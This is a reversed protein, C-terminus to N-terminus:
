QVWVRLTKKGMKTFKQEFGAVRLLKGVRMENARTMQAASFGLAGAMVEATTFSTGRRPPMKGGLDDLQGGDLWRELLSDWSDSVRYQEHVSPALTEADRWAIGSARWVAAGEAWLQLRDARIGALDIDAVRVPLWRRNGTEDVLFERSNTTGIFVLRRPFKTNFERYKPTWEEHTATIFAKVAEIERTGLGRLESIEGVLRGRIKRSLAEDREALNITTFHEPDVVLERAATTKKAGQAGVLIPVSDAKCGPDLVRGALATWLYLSVARTYTTDEANCYDILFREVRQTGDWRLGSLWLIASDFVREKAVMSLTNRMMERPIPRFGAREFGEMIATTGEDGLARWEATGRPAVMVEDRFTDFAIEFGTWEPVRLATALNAITPLIKRKKDRVFALQPREAPAVIKPASKIVEFDDLDAPLDVRLSAATVLRSGQVSFSRWVREVDQRGAYKAGGRASWEDALALGDDSGQTEYHV